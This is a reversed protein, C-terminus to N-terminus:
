ELGVGQQVVLWIRLVQSKKSAKNSLVVQCSRDHLVVAFEAPLALSGFEAKGV